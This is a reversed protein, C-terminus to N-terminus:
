IRKIWVYREYNAAGYLQEIASFLTFDFKLVDALIINNSHSCGWEEPGAYQFAGSTPRWKRTFKFCRLGM